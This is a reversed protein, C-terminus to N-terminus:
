PRARRRRRDPPFTPGRGYEISPGRQQPSTKVLIQREVLDTIIANAQYVDVDFLNRATKNTIRGYERVHDVVKRDIDDITRRHYRVAPGLASLAAGRLRYTPHLRRVTGRTPELIAPPDTSLRRLVAEAENASKQLLPALADAATTRRGCLTFLVLMTDTDSREDEPLQAVYRAIRTNPSGGVLTVSVGDLTEQIRPLESGVRIMERYIRDIGRGTEEAGGLRRFAAALAPNRPKSPHTLINEPTVGAVLPGPSSVVLVTRSHDIVVPVGLRYDRHLVANAVAERVALDPFDALQIQQGDPLTVPVANRRADVLELARKFAVVLPRTVREVTVPEGGPTPRFQYLVMPQSSPEPECFLIEGARMLRGKGDVAGLARLFESDNLRALEQRRDLLTAVLSRAEALAVASVDTAARQSPQASWDYGTREERLRAQDQSSMTVCQQDDIRRYARGQSDQYVDAGEPVPIVLLRVGRISEVRVDVTIAPRTREHILRRVIDPDLDTGVIATPGTGKDDIGLVVTGGVANAFCVVAEALLRGTERLGPGQVKFDLTRTELDAPRRGAEIATLASRHDM